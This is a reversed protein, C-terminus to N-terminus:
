KSVHLAGYIAYYRRDDQRALDASPGPGRLRADLLDYSRFQDRERRRVPRRLYNGPWEAGMSVASFLFIQSIIVPDNQEWHFRASFSVKTLISQEQWM